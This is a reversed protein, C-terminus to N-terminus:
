MYYRLGKKYFDLPMPNTGDLWKYMTIRKIGYHEACEAVSNYITGDCFVKATIRKRPRGKTTPNNSIEKQTAWCLNDVRNDTRITNIHSIRPKNSPNEIFAEAVLKHVTYFKMKSDKYLGVQLYGYTNLMQKLIREQGTSRYNISKVRGLNSVQYKGEYGTIDKWVENMVIM